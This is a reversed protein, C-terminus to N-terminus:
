WGRDPEPGRGRDRRERGAAVGGQVTKDDEGVGALELLMRAGADRQKWRPDHVDAPRTGLLIGATTAMLDKDGGAATRLEAHRKDRAQGTPPDWTRIAITLLHSVTAQDDM